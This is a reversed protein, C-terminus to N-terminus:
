RVTGTLHRGLHLHPHRYLHGISFRHYRSVVYTFRDATSTPSKQGKVTVTVDVTGTGAPSLVWVSTATVYLVLAGHTGFHVTVGCPNWFFCETRAPAFNTGDIRVLTLGFAPGSDPTVKTV